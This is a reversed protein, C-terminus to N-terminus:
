RKKKSSTSSIFVGGGSVTIFINTEAVIEAMTSLRIKEGTQVAGQIDTQPLVILFEEGGIRFPFDSHRISKSLIKGFCYLVNDGCDHGHIDNVDKFHDLDFMLCSLETDHRKSRQFERELINTLYRRNFLGTLDDTITMIELLKKQKLLEHKANELELKQKQLTIHTNVRALVEPQHFPKTIYDVGGAAFGKIKSDISHLATIFIIPIDATKAKAKIKRCTEFGDMGPMMIDMLILDPHHHALTELAREGSEAIHVEFNHEKFLHLLVHMNTPQDDVILIRSPCLKMHSCTSAPTM